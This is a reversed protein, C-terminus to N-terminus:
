FVELLWQASSSYLLFYLSEYIQGLDNSILHIRSAEMEFQSFQNQNAFQGLDYM